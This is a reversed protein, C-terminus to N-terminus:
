GRKNKKKEVTVSFTVPQKRYAKVFRGDQRAPNWHPSKKLLRILEAEMGYGHQTLAKIDSLKGEKDVVFQIIVTYNGPPAGNDVPVIANLNQELFRRWADDGGPFAAEIEVKEFIRLDQTDAVPITDQLIKIPCKNGTATIRGFSCCSVLILSFLGARILIAAQKKTVMSSIQPCFILLKKFFYRFILFGTFIEETLRAKGASQIPLMKDRNGNAAM